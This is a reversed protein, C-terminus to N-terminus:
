HHHTHFDGMEPDDIRGYLRDFKDANRAVNRASKNKKITVTTPKDDSDFEVTYHQKTVKEIRELALLLRDRFQPRTRLEVGLKPALKDFKSNIGPLAALLMYLLIEVPNKLARVHWPKAKLFFGKAPDEATAWFDRDFIISFGDKLKRKELVQPIHLNHRHRLKDRRRREKRRAKKGKPGIIIPFQRTVSRDYFKDFKLETASWRQIAGDLADYYQKSDPWGLLKLLAYDSKFTLRRKGKSQAQM